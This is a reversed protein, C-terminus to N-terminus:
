LTGKKLRAMTSTEKRLRYVYDALLSKERGLEIAIPLEQEEGLQYDINLVRFSKDVNENPLVVQQMDGPQIRNNGFDLIETQLTLNEKETSLWDLYAEARALCEEDSHLEEDTETFERIDAPNTISEAHASWRGKGAFLGDIWIALPVIEPAALMFSFHIEAIESWNFNDIEGVEQLWEAANNKGVNWKQLNWGDDNLLYTKKVQRGDGDLLHIQQDSYFNHGRKIYYQLEPYRNFDFRMGAPLQLILDVWVDIDANYQCKVSKDGIIKSAETGGTDIMVTGNVSSCTWENNGCGDIDLTDETYSDGYLPDKKEAAGFIYIRNRVREVSRSYRYSKIVDTLSVPSNKSGRPFFAFVGDYEERCDYGIVGAKDATKAVFDVIDKLKSKDYDLDTYYTDTNEVLDTQGRFRTLYTSYNDILFRVINAGEADRFRASVLRRFLDEALGRGRLNMAYIMAEGDSDINEVKGQFIQPLVTGRGIWIRVFDKNHIPYTEVYKKDFNALTLEFSNVEDNMALHVHLKLRDEQPIEVGVDYQFNNYQDRNYQEGIVIKCNPLSM